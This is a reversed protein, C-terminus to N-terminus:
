SVIERWIRNKESIKLRINGYVYDKIQRKGKYDSSKYNEKLTKLYQEVFRSYYTTKM